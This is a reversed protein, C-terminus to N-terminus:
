GTRGYVSLVLQMAESNRCETCVINQSPDYIRVGEPTKPKLGSRVNTKKQCWIHFAHESPFIGHKGAGYLDGCDLAKKLYRRITLSGSGTARELQNLTMRGNRRVLETIRRQMATQQAPTFNKGM